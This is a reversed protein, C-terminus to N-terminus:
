TFGGCSALLFLLLVFCCTETAQIYRYLGPAIRRFGARGAARGVDSLGKQTPNSVGEHFYTHLATMKDMLDAMQHENEKWDFNPGQLSVDFAFCTLLLIYDGLVVQKSQHDGRTAMVLPSMFAQIVRNDDVSPGLLALKVRAFPHYTGACVAYLSM